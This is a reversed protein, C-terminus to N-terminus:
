EDTGSRRHTKVDGRHIQTYDDLQRRTANFADRVAVYVDEHADESHNDRSAIIEKGPVHIDILVHYVNRSHHAHHAARVVVHCSIIATFIESLKEIKERITAEVASSHPTGSFTIEIQM